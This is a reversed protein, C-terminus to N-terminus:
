EGEDRTTSTSESGPSPCTESAGGQAPDLWDSFVDTYIALVTMFLAALIPGLVLGSAGFLGLGGLTSVLILLDPMQSDRGVLIPRLFNDVTGVVGACWLLLGVGAVVDGSILLYLVSPAWVLTAGIGPLVSLVAMVAGWFVAAEVGAVAFGIGGLIGQIFGIILTGKVTARGVSFAVALMKERDAESLPAYSMIQRIVSPGSMLLFFMAYLMIFLNLFFIAAGGSLWALSSALVGGVKGAVTAVKTSIETSYPALKDAFPFWDPLTQPELSAGDVHQVVWPKVMEVVEVAQEAVLGLLIILPIIIALLSILLTILSALVARGKFLGLFKQYLPYVISSFVVALLLAEIFDSILMIFAVAYAITLVLVFGKRYLGHVNNAM